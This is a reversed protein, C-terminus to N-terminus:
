EQRLAAAPQLRAAHRAPLAAAAACVGLVVLLLGAVDRYPIHLTLIFGFLHPMTAHVWLVCQALGATTAVALGLTGLVLAEVFVMRRVGRRQSGLMRLTGLERTRAVVEAALTEGMGVLVVLLMAIAHVYMGSFGARVRSAFYETLEPASLIRLSYERGLTAAIAARVRTASVGDTLRVNARSIWKDSWVRAYLDRSMILSGRPSLFHNTAGAVRLRLPGSPTALAVSDGVGIDFNQLFNTSAIVAEGRAVSEWVNPAHRGLLPFWRFAPNVFYAADIAEIAITGGEYQMVTDRTGIVDGVGRIGRLRPLLEDSVPAETFASGVHASSVYLDGRLTAKLMAVVSQEFSSALMWVWLVSGTGVGLIAVALATRRPRRAMQAAGLRLYPGLLPGLRASLAPGISDVVPRAVLATGLILLASAVLGWTGSRWTMELAVAILACVLVAVRFFWRSSAEHGRQEIGRTRVTEVIQARAARWAPLAAAAVGTGVGIVAALLRVWPDLRLAPPGPSVNNTVLAAAQTIRPVFVHAQLLGLPIGIVVGLVGLVFGAAVLRRWVARQRAGLARVVGVEWVRSEFLTSLSNFAILFAAMIAGVMFMRLLLRVSRTTKEMVVKQAAPSEVEMGPPLMARIGDAVADPDTGPRVVIDVRSIVGSQAFERQAAYLDMVVLNGGYLRALGGAEIVGAVSFTKRGSPTDLDLFKGRALNHRRAFTDTIILARPLLARFGDVEARGGGVAYVGAAAMDFLDFAHVALLEGSGDSTFATATLVPVVLQIGPVRAVDIALDRPFTGGDGRRVQLAASGAATDIVEEFAQLVAQRTLTNSCVSSVGTALALVTLALRGYQGRLFGLSM